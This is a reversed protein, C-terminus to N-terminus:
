MCQQREDWSFCSSHESSPPHSLYNMIVLHGPKLLISWMTFASLVTMGLSVFDMIRPFSASSFSVDKDSTMERALDLNIEYFAKEDLKKTPGTALLECGFLGTEEVLKMEIGGNVTISSGARFSLLNPPM